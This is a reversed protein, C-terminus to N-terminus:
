VTLKLSAILPYIEAIDELSVRTDPLEESLLSMYDM